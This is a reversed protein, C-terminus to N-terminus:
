HKEWFLSVRLIVDIYEGGLKLFGNLSLVFYLFDKIYRVPSFKKDSSFRTYEFLGFNEYHETDAFFKLEKKTPTFQIRAM